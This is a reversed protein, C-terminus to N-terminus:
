QGAGVKLVKPRRGFIHLTLYLQRHQATRYSWDFKSHDEYFELTHTDKPAIKFIGNGEDPTVDITSTNWRFFLKPKWALTWHSVQVPVSSLNVITITDTAGQEGTFSYTTILRIRDKWFTEWLKVAALIISIALATNTKLGEVDM